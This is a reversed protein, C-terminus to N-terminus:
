LHELLAIGQNTETVADCLSATLSKLFSTKLLFSQVDEPQREFVEKILYDSVYRHSGSFTQLFKQVEEGNRNQLSIAALQLGAIWGDTKQYLNDVSAHALEIQTSKRLFTEAEPLSFRLDNTDLEMLENRARLLPLPLDPTIRTILVLHLSSPLNQILFSFGELIEKSTISHFDELVLVCRENLRALDNILPTLFTQISPLQPANLAAFTGRGIASDFTRLASIIYTRFRSPDNDNEDLTVWASPFDRRGLWVSVLTTKGFGTPANILTLKKDLSHDLRGLLEDRAIASSQLRPPMLKTHLLSEIRRPSESKPKGM